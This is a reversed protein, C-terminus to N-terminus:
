RTSPFNLLILTPIISRHIHAERQLLQDVVLNQAMEVVRGNSMIQLDMDWKTYSQFKILALFFSLSWNKMVLKECEIINSPLTGM